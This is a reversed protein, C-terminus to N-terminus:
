QIALWNVNVGGSGSLESVNVTFGTTTPTYNGVYSERVSLLSNHGAVNLVGFNTLIFSPPSAFTTNFPITHRSGYVTSGPIWTTETKTVYTANQGTTGINETGYDLTPKQGRFTATDDVAFWAIDVAYSTDILGILALTCGTNTLTSDNKVQAGLLQTHGLENTRLGVIVKPASAFARPFTLPVETVYTTFNTQYTLDYSTPSQSIGTVYGYQFDPSPVTTSPTGLLL